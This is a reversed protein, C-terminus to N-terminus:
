EPFCAFTGLASSGPTTSGQDHFHLRRSIGVWWATDLRIFYIFWTEAECLLSPEMRDASRTDSYKVVGTVLM